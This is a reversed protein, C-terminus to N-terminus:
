SIRLPSSHSAIGGVLPHLTMWKVAVHNDTRYRGFSPKHRNVIIKGNRHNIQNILNHRAIEIIIIIIIICTSLIGMSTGEAVYDITTTIIVSDKRRLLRALRFLFVKAPRYILAREIEHDLIFWSRRTRRRRMQWENLLLCDGSMPMIEPKPEWYALFKVFQFLLSNIAELSIIEENKVM